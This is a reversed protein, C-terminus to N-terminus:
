LGAQFRVNYRAHLRARRDLAAAGTGDLLPLPAVTEGHETYLDMDKAWGYFEIAFLRRDGPAPPLGARFELHVEEGSGIIAVTSDIDAVLPTADGFSTYFGQQYKADWYPARAEYAYHPVRQPGTTREAFGTRAVRAALPRRASPMAVPLPEEIVVRLRDWYIEMNSSLRLANTGAPLDGLPLAMTRPMGAPYGFRAAVMHWIGDRGRAELSAPQYRLGAQWAAFVTQSYPYEVWGDAVLVAGNAQIPAGFELTLVQDQELMGIFRADVTGPPPAQLDREVVLSLVDEGKANTARVPTHSQRYAIPRGTVPPNATGMREDLVMSWDSPLDFVRLRVADLYANEEMPEAFKFLYRGKRPSVAAADLLFSEFPRPPAYRGPVDFFGLGGVGLVDSVFEYIEGNWAFLVPCSALQRQTEAIEHLRKAALDMETQSVGDSWQLAVFDARPNGRLGVSLPVLSQGPGSHPDLTEFVTWRGATRVQVRTGLGSANSRMQDAESRGSLVLSLFPFRGPGPPWLDIGAAGAVILAPGAAPDVPLPLATKVGEANGQWSVSGTRPDIVSVGATEVRLLDLVGDGDFDAVALESKDAPTGASVLTERKWSRGVAPAPPAAQPGAGSVASPVLAGPREREGSVNSGRSRVNRRWALLAGDPSAGYIEPNGDADADAVTAAVLSTQRLDDLGPFPQYRWTRDNQWIDHPPTTNVVLIDLDRDSDLDAALVQRGTGGRIGMEEGLPRFSGDRNNNLLESGAPGTVLIDLDGDHDADFVAGADCAADHGVDSPNWAGDGTQQWLRTGAPGCHVMDVDGDDDMDAWLSAGPGAAELSHDARPLFSGDGTGFLLATGGTGSSALDLTGDGDIDAATVSSWTGGHIRQPEAFLAGAPREPEPQAIDGAAKALAKPGMRGYSFAAVHAAPNNEFRQYDALLGESEELRGARRLAQAGAWYASRLYPDLEVARLFWSAAEAHGASPLLTQGLFYATYADDPDADAARRLLTEAPETEGLYLHLLGSVYLARPHDPERALVGDLIDLARREDGEQQRNLTAIAWNVQADLWHPARDVAESFAEEATAYEYRGMLAVGRDNLSIDEASPEARPTCGSCAIAAACVLAASCYTRLRGINRYDTASQPRTQM